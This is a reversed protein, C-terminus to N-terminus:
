EMDEDSIGFSSPGFNSLNYALSIAQALQNANHRILDDDQSFEWLVLDTILVGVPISGRSAAKRKKQGKKMRGVLPTLVAKRPSPYCLVPHKDLL